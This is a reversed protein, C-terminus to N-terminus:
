TASSSARCTPAPTPSSTSSRRPRGEGVPRPPRRDVHRDRGGGPRRRRPRAGRPRHGAREHRDRRHDRRARRHRRHRGRVRRHPGRRAVRGVRGSVTPSSRTSSSRRARSSTSGRDARSRRAAVGHRRAHRDAVGRRRDRRRGARARRARHRSGRSRQPRHEPALAHGRAVLPDGRPERAHDAPRLSAAGRPRDARRGDRQHGVRHARAPPDAGVESPDIPGLVTMVQGSSM